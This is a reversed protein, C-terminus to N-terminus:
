KRERERIQRDTKREKYHEDAASRGTESREPKDTLM